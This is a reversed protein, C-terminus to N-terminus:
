MTGAFGFVCKNSVQSHSYVGSLYFGTCGAAGFANCLIISQQSNFITSSNKKLTYFSKIFCRASQASLPPLMLKVISLMFLHTSLILSNVFKAGLVAM